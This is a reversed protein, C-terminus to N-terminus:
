GLGFYGKVAATVLEVGIGKALRVSGTTVKTALSGLWGAAKPGLNSGDPQEDAAEAEFEDIETTAVGLKGLTNRLSALDGSAVNVAVQRSHSGVALNAVGGLIVTHFLNTVTEPSM